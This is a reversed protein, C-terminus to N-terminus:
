PTEASGEASGGGDVMCVHPRNDESCTNKRSRHDISLKKGASGEYIGINSESGPSAPDMQIVMSDRSRVQSTKQSQEDMVSNYPTPAEIDNRESSNHQSRHRHFIKHGGKRLRGMLTPILSEHGDSEPDVVPQSSRRRHSAAGISQGRRSELKPTTSDVSARRTALGQQTTSLHQQEDAFPDQDFIDYNCHFPKQPEEPEVISARKTGSHADVGQHYMDDAPPPAALQKDNVPPSLWENTSHRTLLEPFSVMGDQSKSFSLSPAPSLDQVLDILCALAELHDLSLPLGSPGQPVPMAQSVPLTKSSAFTSSARGTVPRCLRSSMKRDSSWNIEAVSKRTVITATAAVEMDRTRTHVQMDEPNVTAYSTAPQNLTMAPDAASAPCPSISAGDLTPLFSSAEMSQERAFSKLRATRHDGTGLQSLHKQSLQVVFAPQGENTTSLEINQVDVERRGDRKAERPKHLYYARANPGVELIYYSPDAKSSSQGHDNENDVEATTYAISNGPRSASSDVTAANSCTDLTHERTPSEPEGEEDQKMPFVPKAQKTQVITSESEMLTETSPKHALKESGLCEEDHRGEFDVALCRSPHEIDEEM